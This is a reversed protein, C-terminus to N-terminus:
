FLKHIFGVFMNGLGEPRHLLSNKFVLLRRLWPYSWLIVKGVGLQM